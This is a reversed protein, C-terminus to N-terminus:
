SGMAALRSAALHVAHLARKSAKAPNMEAGDWVVTVPDIGHKDCMPRILERLTEVPCPLSNWVPVQGEPFPGTIEYDANDVNGHLPKIKCGQNLGVLTTAWDQVSTLIFVFVGYQSAEHLLKTVFVKNKDTAENFNDIILMPFGERKVSISPLQEPGYMNIETSETFPHKESFTCFVTDMANGAKAVLEAASSPKASTLAVCLLQGLHPGASKVGLEKSSFQGEFDEMSAASIMLSRDPRYPHKGHILFEAAKTKGSDAPSCVVIIRGTSAVKYADLMHEIHPSKVVDSGSYDGNLVTKAKADCALTSKLILLRFIM